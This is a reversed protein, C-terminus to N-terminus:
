RSSDSVAGTLKAVGRRESPIPIAVTAQSM